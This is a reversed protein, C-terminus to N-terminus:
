RLWDASAGRYNGLPDSTVPRRKEAVCFQVIDAATAGKEVLDLIELLHERCLVVIDDLTALFPGSEGLATRTLSTAMIPVVRVGDGSAEEIAAARGRLQAPKGAAAQLDRLTCEIPLITARDPTYALVDVADGMGEYVDLVQTYFGALSFVRAVAAEFAEQPLNRGSKKKTADDALALAARLRALGDDFLRYNQLQVNQKPPAADDRELRDVLHGGVHLMLTVHRTNGPLLQSFPLGDDEHSPKRRVIPMRGNAYSGDISEAIYGITGVSGINSSAVWVRGKLEGRNLLISEKVFSAELPAVFEIAPEEFSGPNERRGLVIRTLGAVGDWPRDLARLAADFASRNSQLHQAFTTHGVGARIELRHAKVESRGGSTNVGTTGAIWTYAYDYPRALVTTGSTQAARLLLSLKGIQLEGEIVASLLADLKRKPLIFQHCAFEPLAPLNELRPMEHPSRADLVCKSLVNQWQGDHKVCVIRLDIANWLRPTAQLIEKFQTVHLAPSSSNVPQTTGVISGAKTGAKKRIENRM